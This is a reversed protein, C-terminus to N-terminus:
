GCTPPRRSRARGPATERPSWCTSWGSPATRRPPPSSTSTATPTSMRSSSSTTSGRAGGNEWWSAREGPALGDGINTLLDPDGDGDVDAPIVTSMRGQNHTAVPHYSWSGLDRPDAPAQLWGFEHTGSLAVDPGDLGDLQSVRATLWGYTTPVSPVPGGAWASAATVDGTTPAFLLHVRKGKDLTAVVDQRGDGDLDGFDAGELGVLGTAVTLATWGQGDGLANVYVRLSGDHEFPVVADLDGDGELDALGIGDAGGTSHELYRTSWGSSSSGAPGVAAPVTLWVLTSLLSVATFRVGVTL